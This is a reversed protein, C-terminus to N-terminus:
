EEGRWGKQVEGPAAELNVIRRPGGHRSPRWDKPPIIVDLLDARSQAMQAQVIQDWACPTDPSVECKGNQSGGCPGNLLSKACRAIPCIGATLHLICDGCGACKEMFVGLGEPAGMNSTDVGPVVRLSPFMAQAVQAGVGCALSVVTGERKELPSLFEKECAREVTVSRVTWGKRKLESHLSLAETLENVEKEGGALCIATCSRCGLVTIEKTGDLMGIVETLPKREAIIM